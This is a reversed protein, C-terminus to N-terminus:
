LQETPRRPFVKKSQSTASVPDIKTSVSLRQVGRGFIRKRIATNFFLYIFPNLSLNLIYLFSTLYLHWHYLSVAPILTFGLGFIILSIGLALFQIALSREQRAQKLAVIDSNSKRVLKKMRVTKLIHWYCIILTCFTFTNFVRDYWIYFVNGLLEMNYGWSFSEPWMRLYCCPFMQPICSLFGVLWNVFILVNTNRVTYLKAHKAFQCVAVYRNISINIFCTLGAFYSLNCLVGLFRDFNVGFPYGRISISVPTYVAFLSLMILDSVTLSLTLRYYPKDFFDKPYKVFAYIVPTYACFGIMSFLFVTLAAFGVEWDKPITIQTEATDLKGDSLNGLM